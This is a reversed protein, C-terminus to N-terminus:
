ITGPIVHSVTQFQTVGSIQGDIQVYGDKNLVLKGRAANDDSGTFSGKVLADLM